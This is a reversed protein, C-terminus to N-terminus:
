VAGWRRRVGRRQRIRRAAEQCQLEVQQAPRIKVLVPSIAGATTFGRGPPKASPLAPTAPRPRQFWSEPADPQASGEAFGGPRPKVVTANPIARLLLSRM